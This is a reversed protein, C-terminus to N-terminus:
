TEGIFKVYAGHITGKYADEWAKMEPESAMFLDFHHNKIRGGKDEARRLGLEKKSPFYIKVSNSYPLVKPDVAISHNSKLEEGTRGTVKDTYIFPMKYDQWKLVSKGPINTRGSGQLRVQKLFDKKHRNGGPVKCGDLEDVKADKFRSSSEEYIVYYTLIFRAEYWAEKITVPFEEMKVDPNKISIKLDGQERTELIVVTKGDKDTPKNATLKKVKYNPAKFQLTKNPVPRGTNKDTVVAEFELHFLVKKKEVRSGAPIIPLYDDMVKNKMIRLKCLYKKELPADVVSGKQTDTVASILLEKQPM